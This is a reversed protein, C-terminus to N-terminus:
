WQYGMWCPPQYLMVCLSELVRQLLSCVRRRTWVGKFPGNKVRVSARTDLCNHCCKICRTQSQALTVLKETKLIWQHNTQTQLNRRKRKTFSSWNMTPLRLIMRMMVRVVVIAMVKIMLTTMMMVVKKSRFRLTRSMIKKMYRLRLKTEPGSHWGFCSSRKRELRECNESPLRQGYSQFPLLVSDNWMPQWKDQSLDLALLTM